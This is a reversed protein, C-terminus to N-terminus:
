YGKFINYKYPSIGVALSCLVNDLCSALSEGMTCRVFLISLFCFTVTDLPLSWDIYLFVGHICFFQLTQPLVLMFASQTEFNFYIAGFLEIRKACVM